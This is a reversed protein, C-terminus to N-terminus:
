ERGRKVYGFFEIVAWFALMVALYVVNDM